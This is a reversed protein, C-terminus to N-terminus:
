DSKLGNSVSSFPTTNTVNRCNPNSSIQNLTSSSSKSLKLNLEPTPMPQVFLASWAIIPLEV